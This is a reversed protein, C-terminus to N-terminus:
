FILVSNYRLSIYIVMQPTADNFTMQHDTCLLALLTPKVNLSHTCKYLAFIKAHKQAHLFQIVSEM